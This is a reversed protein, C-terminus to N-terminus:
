TRSQTMGEGSPAGCMIFPITFGSVTVGDFSPAASGVASTAWRIDTQSWAASAWATLLGAALLVYTRKFM